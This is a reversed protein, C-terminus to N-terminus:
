QLVQQITWVLFDISCRDNRVEIWDGSRHLVTTNLNLTPANVDKDLAARGSAAAIQSCMLSATAYLINTMWVRRKQYM